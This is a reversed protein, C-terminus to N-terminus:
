GMAKMMLDQLIDAPASAVKPQAARKRQEYWQRATDKGTGFLKFGKTRYWSEFDPDKTAGTEAAEVPRAKGSQPQEPAPSRAYTTFPIYDEQDM